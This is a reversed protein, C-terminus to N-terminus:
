IVQCKVEDEDFYWVIIRGNILPNWDLWEQYILNMEM